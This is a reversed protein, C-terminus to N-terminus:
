LESIALIPSPLSLKVLKDKQWAYQGSIHVFRSINESKLTGSKIQLLTRGAGDKHSVAPHLINTNPVKVVAYGERNKQQKARIFSCVDVENKYVPRSIAQVAIAKLIMAWRDMNDGDAQYLEVYVETENSTIPTENTNKFTGAPLQTAVDQVFQNQMIEIKKQLLEFFLGSDHPWKTLTEQFQKILTILEEPTPM